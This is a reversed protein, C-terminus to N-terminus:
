QLPFILLSNHIATTKVLHSFLVLYLKKGAVIEHQQQQHKELLEKEKQEQLKKARELRRTGFYFM